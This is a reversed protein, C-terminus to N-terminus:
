KIVNYVLHLHPQGTYRNCGYGVRLKYPEYYSDTSHVDTKGPLLINAPFSGVQPAETLIGTPEFTLNKATNAAPTSTIQSQPAPQEGIKTLTGTVKYYNKMQEFLEERNELGQGDYYPITGSKISLTQTAADWETEAYLIKAIDNRHVLTSGNIIVPTVTFPIKKDDETDFFRGVGVMISRDIRKHEIDITNTHCSFLYNKTGDTYLVAKAFEVVMPSKQRVVWGTAEAVEKIPIMANGNIVQPKQDFAVHNGDATVKIEQPAAAGATLTATILIALLLLVALLKKTKMIKM